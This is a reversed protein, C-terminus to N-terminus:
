GGAIGRRTWQEGEVKLQATLPVDVTPGGFSLVDLDDKDELLPEKVALPDMTEHREPERQCPATASPSPCPAPPTCSCTSGLLRCDPRGAAERFTSFTPFLDFTLVSLAVQAFGPSSRPELARSPRPSTRLARHQLPTAPLSVSTRQYGERQEASTRCRVRAEGARQEASQEASGERSKLAVPLLMRREGLLLESWREGVRM